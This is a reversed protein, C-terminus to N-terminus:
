GQWRRRRRRRRRRRPRLRQKKTQQDPRATRLIPVSLV